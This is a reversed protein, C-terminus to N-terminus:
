ISSYTDFSFYHNMVQRFGDTFNNKYYRMLSNYGDRLIGIRTRKGTRTFDTKLAGTGSYEISIVDANDAWVTSWHILFPLYVLLCTYGFNVDFTLFSFFSSSLLLFSFVLLLLLSSHLSPNAGRWVMM